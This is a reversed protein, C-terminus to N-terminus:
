IAWPRILGPRSLTWTALTNERTNKIVFHFKIMSKRKHNFVKLPISLSYASQKHFPLFSSLDLRPSVNVLLLALRARWAFPIVLLVQLHFLLIMSCIASLWAESKLCCSPFSLNFLPARCHSRSLNYIQSTLSQMFNLTCNFHVQSTVIRVTRVSQSHSACGWLLSRPMRKWWSFEFWESSLCGTTKHKPKTQKVFQSTTNSIKAKLKKERQECPEEAKLISFPYRTSKERLTSVRLALPFHSWNDQKPTMTLASDM